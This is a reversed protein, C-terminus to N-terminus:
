CKKKKREKCLELSKTIYDMMVKKNGTLYSEIVQWAEECGYAFVAAYGNKNLKEVWDKQEETVKSGQKRKMEIMLGHYGFSPYHLSIDPFGKRLGERKLRAGTYINRKGENPTHVMMELQPYKYRVRMCYEFLLQQEESETPIYFESM